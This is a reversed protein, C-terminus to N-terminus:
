FAISLLYVTLGMTVQCSFNDDPPISFLETLAGILAIPFAYPVNFFTLIAYGSLLYALFGELTKGKIKVRGFRGLLSALADSLVAVTVIGACHDPFFWVVTLSGLVFYIHAGIRSKEYWRAIEDIVKEIDEVKIYLKLARKIEERLKMDLRVSELITFVVLVVILFSLTYERGFNLYIAPVILGTLHVAKRKLEKKM